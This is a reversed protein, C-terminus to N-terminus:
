EPLAVQPHLLKTEVEQHLYTQLTEYLDIKLISVKFINRAMIPFFNFGFFIILFRIKESKEPVSTPLPALPLM